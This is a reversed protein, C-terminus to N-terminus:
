VENKEGFGKKILMDAIESPLEVVEGESYPGYIALDPGVFEEVQASIHIKTNNQAPTNLPQEETEEEIKPTEPASDVSSVPESLITSRLELVNYLVGKRYKDLICLVENYLLKEENLLIERNTVAGNTRSVDLALNILKKERWEYIERIIRQLNEIQNGIKKREEFGFLGHDNQKSDLLAQKEKLYNIVDAFFTHDLPQIELSNKEKRLINYLTDYTIVVDTVM